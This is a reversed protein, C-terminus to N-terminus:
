PKKKKGFLDKVGKEAQDLAAGPDVKKGQLADKLQSEVQKGLDQGVQKLGSKLDKLVDAPFVGNGSSAAQALVAEVIAKTIKGAIQATSGSTDLNEIRIEPVKVEYDGDLAPLGSVHLACRTDRITLLKIALTRGGSESAPETPQAPGQSGSGGASKQLNSLITDWNSGSANRELDLQLGELAFEDIALKDSFLTGNQWRARASKLALFPEPRYGPPNAIAFGALGFSGSFPSADVAELTTPVGAAASGGTEVAKRVITGLFLFVGGAALLLLLFGLVLLRKLIKM